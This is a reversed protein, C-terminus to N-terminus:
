FEVAVQHNFRQRFLVQRARAACARFSYTDIICHRFNQAFRKSFISPFTPVAYKRDHNSLNVIQHWSIKKFNYLIRDSSARGPFLQSISLPLVKM